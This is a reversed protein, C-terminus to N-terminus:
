QRQLKRPLKICIKTPMYTTGKIMEMTEERQQRVPEIINCGIAKESKYKRRGKVIVEECIQGRKDGKAGNPKRSYM